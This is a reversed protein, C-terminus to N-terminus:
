KRGWKSRKKSYKACSRSQVKMQAKTQIWASKQAEPVAEYEQRLANSRTSAVGYDNMVSQFFTKEDTHVKQLEIWHGASALLVGGSPYTLSVHGAAGANGKSDRTLQHRPVRASRGDMATMVTLVDMVYGSAAAAKKNVTYTITSSMAHVHATGKASM